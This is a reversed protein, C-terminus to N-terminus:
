NVNVYRINPRSEWNAFILGMSRCFLKASHWNFSDGCVSGTKQMGTQKNVVTAILIGKKVKLTKNGSSMDNTLTAGFIEWVSESIIVFTSRSCIFCTSYKMFFMTYIKPRFLRSFKGIDVVEVYSYHYSDNRKMMITNMFFSIVSFKM